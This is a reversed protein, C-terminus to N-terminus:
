DPTWVTPVDRDDSRNINQVAKISCQFHNAKPALRHSILRHHKRISSQKAGTKHKDMPQAEDGYRSPEM